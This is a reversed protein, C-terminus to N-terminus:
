ERIGPLRLHVLDEDLRELAQDPVPLEQDSGDGAAVPIEAPLRDLLDHSISDEPYTMLRIENVIAAAHRM